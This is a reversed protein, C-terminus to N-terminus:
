YNLYLFLFPCKDPIIDQLKVAITDNLWLLVVNDMQYWFSSLTTVAYVHLRPRPRRPCVTPAHLGGLRALSPLSPVSPGVRRVCPVPHQSCQRGLAAELLVRYLTRYALILPGYGGTHRWCSVGFPANFNAPRSPSALHPANWVDAVRQDSRGGAMRWPSSTAAAEQTMRCPFRKIDTSLL